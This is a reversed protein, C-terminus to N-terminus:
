LSIDIFSDWSRIYDSPKYVSSSLHLSLSNSPLHIAQFPQNMQITETEGDPHSVVVDFSGSIAVICEHQSKYAHGGRKEGAPVSHIWFLREIPFPIQDPFQLYSLNGRVDEIKPILNKMENNNV